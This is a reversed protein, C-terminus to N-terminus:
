PRLLEAIAADLRARAQTCGPNNDLADVATALSMAGVFACSARMRHLLARMGTRDGARVFERLAERQAPLEDLFLKRLAVVHGANGLARSAAADDWADQSARAGADAVALGLMGRIATRVAEASLPKALVAEFGAAVLTAHLGADRSATHALAPTGPRTTRLRELLQTGSGDPLHADILWADYANGQALGLAGAMDTADDVSAPLAAIADRLFIRSVPDDEVLLVRPPNMPPERDM